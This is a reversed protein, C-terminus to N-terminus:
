VSTKGTLTGTFAGALPRAGTVNQLFAQCEDWSRDAFVWVEEPVFMSHPPLLKSVMWGNATRRIEAAGWSGEPPWPRDIPM